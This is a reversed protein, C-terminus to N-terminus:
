RLVVWAIQLGVAIVLWLVLAAVLGWGVGNWFRRPNDPEPL